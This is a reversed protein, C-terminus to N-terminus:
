RQNTAPRNATAGATKACCVGAGAAGAGARWAGGGSSRSGPTFVDAM